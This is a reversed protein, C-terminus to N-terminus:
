HDHCSDVPAMGGDTSCWSGGEGHNDVHCLSDEVCTLGAATNAASWFWVVLAESVVPVVTVSPTTKYKTIYLYHAVPKCTQKLADVLTNWKLGPTLRCRCWLRKLGVVVLSM